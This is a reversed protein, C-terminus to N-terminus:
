RRPWTKFGYGKPGTALVSVVAGTKKESVCLNGKVRSTAKSFIGMLCARPLCSHERALVQWSHEYKEASPDLCTGLSADSYFCFLHRAM